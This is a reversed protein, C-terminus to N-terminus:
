TSNYKYRFCFSIITCKHSHWKVNLTHLPQFSAPLGLNRLLSLSLAGHKSTITESGLHGSCWGAQPPIWRHLIIILSSCAVCSWIQIYEDRMECCLSPLTPHPPPYTGSVCYVNIWWSSLWQSSYNTLANKQHVPVAAWWLSPIRSSTAACYFIGWWWDGFVSVGYCCRLHLAGGGRYWVSLTNGYLHYIIWFENMRRSKVQFM